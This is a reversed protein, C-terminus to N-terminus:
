IIVNIVKWGNVTLTFNMEADFKIEFTFINERDLDSQVSYKENEMVTPVIPITLSGGPYGWEELVPSSVTIASTDDHTFLRMVTLDFQMENEDAMMGESRVYKVNRADECIQNDSRCRENVMDAAVTFSQDPDAKLASSPLGKLIVRLTNTNQMMSVEGYTTSGMVTKVNSINGYYLKSLEETVLKSGDAMMEYSSIWLRHESLSTVGKGNEYDYSRVEGYRDILGMSYSTMDGGWTVINWTGEPLPLYISNDSGLMEPDDVVFSEYFNDNGDFVLITLKNVDSHFRDEYHPNLTYGYHLQLGSYCGEMSEKICGTFLLVLPLLLSHIKKIM